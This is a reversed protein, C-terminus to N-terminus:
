VWTTLDVDDRAVHNVLQWGGSTRELTMSIVGGADFKLVLQFEQGTPSLWRVKLQTGSATTVTIRDGAAAGTGSITYIRAGTLGGIPVFITSAQEVTYTTDADAGTVQTGRIRGKGSM